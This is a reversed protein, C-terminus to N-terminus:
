FPSMAVLNDNKKIPLLAKAFLCHTFPIENKSESIIKITQNIRLPIGVKFENAVNPVILVLFLQKHHRVLRKHLWAVM